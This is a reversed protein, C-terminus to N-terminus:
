EKGKFIWLKSFFYNAVVVVVNDIIKTLLPNAHLVSIGIWMIVIDMILSLGRFFFFSGMEKLLAAVGHTKSSFVWIKNTIYAFLVSLFWAIVNAIQYNMVPELLTFVGINILTTLGGFFLYAIVSQYKKFLKMM